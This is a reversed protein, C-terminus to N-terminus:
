PFEAAAAIDPGTRWPDMTPRQPSDAEAQSGSSGTGVLWGPGAVQNCPWWTERLFKFSKLPHVLIFWSNTYLEESMKLSNLFMNLYTSIM